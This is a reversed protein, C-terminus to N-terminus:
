WTDILKSLLKTTKLTFFYAALSGLRYVSGILVPASREWHVNISDECVRNPRSFITECKRTSIDVGVEEEEGELM